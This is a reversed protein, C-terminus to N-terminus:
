MTGVLYAGAAASLLAYIGSGLETAANCKNSSCCYTIREYETEESEGFKTTENLCSAACTRYVCRGLKRDWEDFRYDGVTGCKGRPITSEAKICYNNRDEPCITEGRAAATAHCTLATQPYQTAHSFATLLLSLLFLLPRISQMITTCPGQTTSAKPALIIRGYLTAGLGQDCLRASCSHSCLTDNQAVKKREQKKKPSVSVLAFLCGDVMLLIIPGLSFRLLWCYMCCASAEKRSSFFCLSSESFRSISAARKAAFPRPTAAL